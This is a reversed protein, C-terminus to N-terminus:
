ILTQRPSGQSLWDSFFLPAGGHRAKRGCLRTAREDGVPVDPYIESFPRAGGVVLWISELQRHWDSWDLHPSWSRNVLQPCGLLKAAVHSHISVHRLWHVSQELRACTCGWLVLGEAALDLVEVLPHQHLVEVWFWLITLALLGNGLTMLSM